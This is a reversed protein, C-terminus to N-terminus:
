QLKFRLGDSGLKLRAGTQVSTLTIEVGTVANILAIGSSGQGLVSAAEVGAYEGNFDEVKELKYVKGFASVKSIGLDITSLGEVKFEYTEGQFELEGHGWKVGIGIAVNESHMQISGVPDAAMASGASFLIGLVAAAVMESFKKM